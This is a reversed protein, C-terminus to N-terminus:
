DKICRVSNGSLGYYWFLIYSPFDHTLLLYYYQPSSKETSSWICGWEGIYEFSSLYNYYGGPLATFGSENTAGINPPLWHMTGTEIMKGADNGLFNMLTTWDLDSPIHWGAPCIGQAGVTSSYQMMEWWQYLGGYTNCNNIDHNYCYKEIIGNNRQMTDGVMTGINLNERMWCQNGIQVTNYVQGGYTVTPIGPCPSIFGIVVTDTSSRCSTTITWCLEYSMGSQGTFSSSSNSPDAISGGTGSIISWAGIGETPTNAALSTTTNLLGLQDPGANAQTPQPKCSDIKIYNTKIETHLGFMNSATLSVTFSGVTDYVHTPNQLTSSYGDGFNWFWSTANNSLDLFEIIVGTTTDTPSAIFDAYIPDVPDSVYLSESVECGDSDQVYVTHSGEPVNQFTNSPSYTSNDLKYQYPSKGNYATATVVNGQVNYNLNLYSKKCPDVHTYSAAAGCQTFDKIYFNYTTDEIPIIQPIQSNYSTGDTSYEYPPNGMRAQPMITNGNSIVSASLSSQSCNTVSTNANFILPSNSINNGTCDLVSAELKSKPAGGPTWLTSAEGSKNSLVITNQVSGGNKPTFKVAVFPVPFGKNSLVKVKLRVDLPNGPNYIQNNGSIMQIKDPIQLKYIGRSFSKEEDFLKIGLAEAKVGLKLTGGIDLNTRWNTNYFCLKFDENLRLDIWPGVIGYLKFEFKPGIDFHQTLSGTVEFNNNVIPDPNNFSSPFTWNGDEYEIASTFIERKIYEHSINMSADIDAKIKGIIKFNTKIWIPVGGIVFIINKNQNYLTFDKDILNLSSSANLAIKYNREVKANYMGLKFMRVKLWKMKLDAKLNPYFRYYGTLDISVNPHNFLNANLDLSIFEGGNRNLGVNADVGPYTYDPITEVVYYYNGTKYKPNSLEKRTPFRTMREYGNSRQISTDIDFVQALDYAGDITFDELTGQSTYMTVTDGQYSYSDVSRMFGDNVLGLLVSSDNIQPAPNSFKIIYIGNAMQTSDSLIQDTSDVIAIVDLYNNQVFEISVTDSSTGCSDTLTWELLYLSDNGQFESSPDNVDTFTGGSGSVINWIGSADDEINAMMFVSNGSVVRDPGANALSQLKVLTHDTYQPPTDSFRLVARYYKTEEPLFRYVTDQAGNIFVWYVSNYSEEWQVTGYQYNNVRLTVSDSACLLNYPIFRILVTDTSIGCKNSITWVLSYLENQIGYFETSAKTSDTLYGGTGNIITWTGNGYSPTNAMLTISEGAVNLADTGANAQSPPEIFSINVLDSANGCVTSITWQLTYSSDPIGSFDSFPDSIDSFSGGNGSVVSWTGNGILPINAALTTPSCTDYQDPGADAQTPQPECSKICRVSLGTQKSMGMRAINNQGFYLMRFYSVGPSGFESSTWLYGVDGLAYFSSDVSSSCGSPLTTFGFIDTGNGGSNWSTTSKLNLGADYGRYMAQDWIPDGVGYQSDVTGELIKYEADTPVHWGFPCIGQSGETTIYQMMENWQYLGGYMSCNITDNNYCHKEIIGNDSQVISVDVMTGTNLNEKLWCQSGIQITNYIQGNYNVTPIGPCPQPPPISFSIIVTDKSSTCNNSISWILEYTRGALGHFVSTPNTPDSFSGGTGFIITWLGQGHVPSNAQLVISDGQINLTDFGADAQTPPVLCSDKICRVSAGLLKNNGIRFSQDQDYVFIRSWMYDPFYITSTWLAGREGISYFNGDNGRMGSPKLDFGFENTGNGNSNWGTTSKLKLAIDFGRYYANDWEPDGVGFQSDVNGELIKWEEDSPIHWEPPCIGQAGNSTVYQMLEDWQYLGGFIKCNNTDNNHCYKEIVGNDTQDLSSDIMTGINLNETLWCHPGILITNYTEGGYNIIPYGPCSVHPLTNFSIIVTDSSSDCNNSITWVLYYVNGPEGHFMTSPNTSDAFSGESGSAVTWLGQGFSPTNAQLTISDSTINLTDPGADALTPMNMFSIIVQDSTSGCITTITWQLTYSNGPIGTFGSFPNNIDSFSGGSGNIISWAGNGSTPSNAALTTPSCVNNQDQGADAPDPQPFCGFGIQVTDSSSGCNNSITWVLDYIIGIDGYFLTNAYTSDAFCGGTGTAITWLGNGIAPTNAQLMISDGAIGLSDLGAYAQSPQTLCDKLCRVGGGSSEPTLKRAVQEGFTMHIERVYPASGNNLSSSTYWNADIGISKFGVYASYFGGPLASFGFLDNGNQGSIWGSTSKLNMAVDYGRLGSKDWEPDGVGYLSDSNGELTKWENDTPIHWGDPCIGQSGEITSYQMLEDWQYLGGYIDCNHVSDNYCYKEIIGNNYQNIGGVIMTGINLNEAMWCQYFIQVTNYSKGDRIDFLQEGCVFAPPAFSIIVTDSSSGCNNTITWVLHYTIGSSGYFITLHKTSDAFSGGTGNAITWIGQGNVPTNAQMTISDDPINLSDKGADAQDPPPFCDLICRVNNGDAKAYFDLWRYIMDHDFGWTRNRANTSNDQTSSWIYALENSYYFYGNHYRFGAPLVSFGFKDNGNGNNNWGNISKLNKGANFGRGGSQDWVPDGICYISDVYGELIKWENDTPIHWGNPCIGQAGETTVYEMMEDWQYLGGYADCNSPNDMYCYKEIISNNTQEASGNIMIGINLNEKMWCQNGIQVTNYIKGDYIINPIGPCSQPTPASFGISVVDTSIGCNNIITWILNYSKGPLGYFISTPNTSDAFSGECGNLIAWFGQGELPTNGSLVISDGPINISDPGANSQTPIPICDKICRVSNGEMKGYFDLWRYVIDNDWGVTRNRAKNINDETSSWFYGIEGFNYFSGNTWRMSGPLARFGYLDTGNGGSNWGNLAKLNKGADFGRGGSLDWEPNGVGYQSDVTGELVKWDYDTPIHWGDPCIGQTGEDTVYQMMEDWQYLGGYSNCNTELNDYCYKELTGNDTQDNVSNIMTGSNINEAMWCQYGIQVTGYKKGDRQDVLTDGCQFQPIGEPVISNYVSTISPSNTLGVLNQIILSPDNGPGSYKIISDMNIDENRYGSVTTTISSSGSENVIHQLVPGRDNAPGSYKLVGDKNVDGAIMGFIGPEIEILAKDGGGYPPFNLTDSFDYPLSNPISVPNASMVPFHNRHHICLFYSGASIGPFSITSLLNTDAVTGDSMLIAARRAMIITPDASNRLEVLVWDVMNAPVPNISENGNYNWPSVYYPQTGPVLNNLSTKMLSNSQYAGQLFTKCKTDQGFNIFPCIAIFIFVFASKKM